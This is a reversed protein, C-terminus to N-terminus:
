MIKSIYGHAKSNPQDPNESDMGFTWGAGVSSWFKCEQLDKMNKGEGTGKYSWAKCRELGADACLVACASATEVTALISSEEVGDEPWLNTVAGQPVDEEWPGWFGPGSESTDKFKRLVANGTQGDNNQWNKGPEPIDNKTNAQRFNWTDLEGDCSLKWPLEEEEGDWYIVAHGDSNMFVNRGNHLDSGELFKGACEDTSSEIRFPKRRLAAKKAASNTAGRTYYSQFTTTDLDFQDQQVKQLLEAHNPDGALDM